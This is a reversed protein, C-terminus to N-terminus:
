KRKSSLGFSNEFITNSKKLSYFSIFLSKPSNEDYSCLGQKDKSFIDFAQRASLTQLPHKTRAFDVVDYLAM